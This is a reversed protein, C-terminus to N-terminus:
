AAPGKVTDAPHGAYPDAEEADAEAVPLETRMRLYVVYGILGITWEILRLTLRGALGVAPGGEGRILRYLGGFTLEGAGLGGPVPIIAQVIFGIPAIVFHEPLTGLLAPDAPPFVRTALHFMTVFGTHVVASMAVVAAVTKPRQRYTRVTFWLEALTPGVHVSFVTVRHLRDSLRKSWEASALGLAVYGVLVVASLGVCVLVIAQLKPNEAIKENGAAWCGGGVTAAFLLLGFLGVLRDAVVTAVAAAKREPHGKAIFFAKVFDGGVSGPLFTNYFTGVLGLRLVNRFAVPLGLARVLLYWRFYQVVTCCALILAAALFPLIHPERSFLDSLATWNMSVVLALLGAALGYKLAVKWWGSKKM